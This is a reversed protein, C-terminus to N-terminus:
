PNELARAALEIGGSAPTEADDDLVSAEALAAQGVLIADLADVVIAATASQRDRFPNYEVIEIGALNPHGGHEALAALLDAARM